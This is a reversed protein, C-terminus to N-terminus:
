GLEAEGEAYVDDKLDLIRRGFRGQQDLVERLAEFGAGSLSKSQRLAGFLSNRPTSPRRATRHFLHREHQMM